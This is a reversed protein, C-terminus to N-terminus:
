DPYKQKLYGYVNEFVIMMIAGGPGLRMIKPVLGKYLAGVRYVNYLYNYSVLM